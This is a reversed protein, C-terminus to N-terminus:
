YCCCCGNFTTKYSVHQKPEPKANSVEPKTKPQYNDNTQTQENHLKQKNTTTTITITTTQKNATKRRQHTTETKRDSNNKPPLKTPATTATTTKNQQQGRQQRRRQKQQKKDDSPKQFMCKLGTAQRHHTSLKQQRSDNSYASNIFAVRVQHKADVSSDTSETVMGVRQLAQDVSDPRILPFLAVICFLLWCVTTQQKNETTQKHTRAKNQKSNSHKEDNNNNRIKKLVIILNTTVM